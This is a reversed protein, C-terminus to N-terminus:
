PKSNNWHPNITRPYLATGSPLHSSMNM